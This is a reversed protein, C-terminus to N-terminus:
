QDTGRELEDAPWAVPVKTPNPGYKARWEALVHPEPAPAGRRRLLWDRVDRWHQTWEPASTAEVAYGPSVDAEAILEALLASRARAAILPAAAAVARSAVDWSEGEERGAWYEPADATIEWNAAGVAEASVVTGGALISPAPETPDPAPVRTPAPEVAIQPAEKTTAEPEGAVGSHDSWQRIRVWGFGICARSADNISAFAQERGVYPLGGLWTIDLGALRDEVQRIVSSILREDKTPVDPAAPAASGGDLDTM